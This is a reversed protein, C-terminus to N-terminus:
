RRKSRSLKARLVEAIVVAQNHEEDRASYVLTLPGAAAMTALETLLPQAAAGALEERYRRAFEQWREIRHDFWKRLETSPGLEKLWHDIAAAERTLGRPWVRDVLVRCGDSPHRPEYVRKIRLAATHNMKPM